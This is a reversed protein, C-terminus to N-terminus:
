LGYTCATAPQTIVATLSALSVIAAQTGSGTNAAATLSISGSGSGSAIAFPAWAASGSATWACGSQTTVQITVKGGTSPVIQNTPSLTYSCAGVAIPATATVGSYSVVLSDLGNGTATITGGSDVSFVNATGSLATYTAVRTVDIPGSSFLAKADIVRSDGVTMSAAPANVLNLAYPSGSLQLTYNLTTAAYTNDSFVAIAVFSASGLRTPTFSIGFPSLTSYLLATDTPDTVIQFLLTETIAKTTSAATIVAGANITLASGTPPSFSVNSAPVQTYASLDLVPAPSSATAAARTRKGTLRADPSLLGSGGELWYLVQNWVAVSATEATDGSTLAEHVVGDITATDAAGANQSAAQVITDHSSGLVSGDTQGSYFAGILTTLKMETGSVPQAPPEPAQGVVASYQNLPSLTELPSSGPILSLVGTDVIEGQNKM